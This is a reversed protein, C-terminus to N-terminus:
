MSNQDLIAGRPWAARPFVFSTVPTLTVNTNFDSRCLVEFRLKARNFGHIEIEHAVCVSADGAFIRDEIGLAAQDFFALLLAHQHGSDQSTEFRLNVDDDGARELSSTLGGLEDGGLDTELGRDEGRWGERGVAIASRQLLQDCLVLIAFTDQDHTMIGVQMLEDGFQDGPVPIAMRMGRRRASACDPQTLACDGADVDGLPRRLELPQDVRAQGFHTM